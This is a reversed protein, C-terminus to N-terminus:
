QYVVFVPFPELSLVQAPTMLPADYNYFLKFGGYEFGPEQAYQRYDKIKGGPGGFGDADWVLDVWPYPVIDEKGAFMRNDFQHIILMKRQGTALAIDNLWAQVLNLTAGDMFGILQGPIRTTESMMFEPDIALHVDRQRIYPEVYALEVTIPSHGPQIDLVSWVGHRHAVDLWPQLTTSVVRHNYNKDKGPFPDAITTVMHFFPIVQTDTLLAQYEAAQMLTMSVTATASARGLIGLGPGGPTGYLGILLRKAFLPSLDPGADPPRELRQMEVPDLPALVEPNGQYCPTHTPAPSPTLTSPLPTATSVTSSTASPQTTPTWIEPVPTVTMSALSAQDRAVTWAFAVWAGAVLLALGLLFLRRSIKM